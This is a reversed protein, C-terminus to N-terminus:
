PVWQNLAMSRTKVQAGCYVTSMSCLVHFQKAAPLSSDNENLATTEYSYFWYYATKQTLIEHKQLM